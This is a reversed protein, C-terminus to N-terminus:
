RVSPLYKLAGPYDLNHSRPIVTALRRSYKSKSRREPFDMTEDVVNGADNLVPVQPERNFIETQISKEQIAKGVAGQFLKTMNDSICSGGLDAPM